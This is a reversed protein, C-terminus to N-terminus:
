LGREEAAKCWGTDSQSELSSGLLRGSWSGLMKFTKFWSGSWTGPPRREPHSITFIRTKAGGIVGALELNPWMRDICLAIGSASQKGGTVSLDLYVTKMGQLPTVARKDGNISGPRADVHIDLNELNPCYTGFCGLGALTVKPAEGDELVWRDNLTLSRLQLWGKAMEGIMSDDLGLHCLSAVFTVDELQTCRLTPQFYQWQTEWSDLSIFVERLNSLRSIPILAATNDGEPRATLSLSTMASASCSQVMAACTAIDGSVSLCEFSPMDRDHEAWTPGAELGQLEVEKLQLSRLTSQLLPVPLSPIVISIARLSSFRHLATALADFFAADEEHPDMVRAVVRMSIQEIVPCRRLVRDFVDLIASRSTDHIVYQEITLIRISPGLLLRSLNPLLAAPCATALHLTTLSLTM